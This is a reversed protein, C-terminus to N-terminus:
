PLEEVEDPDPTKPHMAGGRGDKELESDQVGRSNRSTIGRERTSIRNSCRDIPPERCHRRARQRDGVAAVSPM